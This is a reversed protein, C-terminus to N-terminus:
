IYVYVHAVQATPLRMSRHFYTSKTEHSEWCAGERGRFLLRSPRGTCFSWGRELPGRSIVWRKPRLMKCVSWGTNEQPKSHGSCISVIRGYVCVCVCWKSAIKPRCHLDGELTPDPLLCPPVRWRVRKEFPFFSISLSCKAGACLRSCVSMWIASAM